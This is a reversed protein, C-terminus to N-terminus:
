GGRLASGCATRLAALAARAVHAPIRRARQAPLDLASAECGCRSGGVAHWRDPKRRATGGRQREALLARCLEGYTSRLGPFAKLVRDVGTRAADLALLDATLPDSASAKVLPMTAMYAALWVYLDRNLARNPFLEVVPPLLVTGDDRTAWAAKEEGLGVLQRFRLRHSSTKAHAPGLQAAAEGGFGRFCTALFPKVDDFTVAHDPHRPLSSTSGVLRHWFKGVTEELELFELM